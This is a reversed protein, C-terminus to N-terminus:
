DLFHQSGNKHTQQDNGSQISQGFYTKLCPYHEPQNAYEEEVQSDNDVYLNPNPLESAMKAKSLSDLSHM